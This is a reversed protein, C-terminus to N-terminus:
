EDTSVDMRNPTKIHRQDGNENRPHAAQHHESWQEEAYPQNKMNDLPDSYSVGKRYCKFKVMIVWRQHITYEFCDM